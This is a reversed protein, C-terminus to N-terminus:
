DKMMMRTLHFYSKPKPKHYSCRDFVDGYKEQEDSSLKMDSLNGDNLAKLTEPSLM